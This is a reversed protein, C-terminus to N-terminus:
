VRRTDVDAPGLDARREVVTAWGFYAAALAIVAHLWIDNGHIPMLGFATKAWNQPILAMLAVAGYVVALVQCYVRSWGLSFFALIGLIGSGLHVLNHVSNVPWIGLLYGHNHEIALQYPDAHNQHVFAPVFGMIGVLVFVIGLVLVFYRTAM